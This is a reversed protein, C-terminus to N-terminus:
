QASSDQLTQNPPNKTPTTAGTLWWAVGGTFLLFAIMKHRLYRLNAETM